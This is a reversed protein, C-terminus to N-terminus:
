VSARPGISNWTTPWSRTRPLAVQAVDLLLGSLCFGRLGQCYLLMFTELSKRESGDPNTMMADKNYLFGDEDHM